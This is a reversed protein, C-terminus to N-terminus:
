CIIIKNTGMPRISIDDYNFGTKYISLHGTHPDISVIYKAYGDVVFAVSKSEIERQEERNAYSVIDFEVVKKIKNDEM